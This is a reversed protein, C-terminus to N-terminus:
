DFQRTVPTTATGWHHHTRGEVHKGKPGAIQAAERIASAAAAPPELPRPM